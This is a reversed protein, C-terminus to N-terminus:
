GTHPVLGSQERTQRPLGQVCQQSHPRARSLGLTHRDLDQVTVGDGLGFLLHQVLKIFSYREGLPWVGAGQINTLTSPFPLKPAQALTFAPSARAWGQLPLM